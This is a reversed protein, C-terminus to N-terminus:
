KFNSINVKYLGQRQTNTTINLVANEGLRDRLQKLYLSRPYDTNGSKAITKIIGVVISQIGNKELSSSNNTQILWNRAGPPSQVITKGTPTKSNWIIVQAGVWGHGTGRGKANIINFARTSVNDFLIGTAWRQHPGSDATAGESICDLFVNPGKVLKGTVFDHRGKESYSRQILNFSGDVINFAYRRGGQPKSKPAIMACDEITNFISNNLITVVSQGFNEAIVNKVWCNESSSIKIAEWGHEEDTDSEYNSILRIDEVGSNNVIRNAKLKYVFAKGNNKNFSEVMPINTTLTNGNKEKVIREHDDIFGKTTWGYQSMGTKKLWNNNPQISIIITDGVKYESADKISFRNSGVPIIPGTVEQATNEIKYISSSGNGIRILNQKQKKTARIVTADTGSGEGGLIVGAQSITITGNVPYEGSKLLVKGRVGNKDLPLQSVKDIANQIHKTNDGNIPSIIEKVDVNPLSVGGSKYGAFSFDPIINVKDSESNNAYKLYELKGTTSNIRILSEADIRQGVATFCIFFSLLLIITRLNKM